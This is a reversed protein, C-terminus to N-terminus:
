PWYRSRTSIGRSVEVGSSSARRASKGHLQRDLAVFALFQRQTPVHEVLAGAVISACGLFYENSGVAILRHKRRRNQTAM